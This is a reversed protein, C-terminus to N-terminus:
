VAAPACRVAPLPRFYVGPDEGAAGNTRHDLQASSKSAGGGFAKVFYVSIKDFFQLWQGLLFYRSSFKPLTWSIKLTKASFELQNTTAPLAPPACASSHGPSATSASALPRIQSPRPLQRLCFLPQRTTAVVRPTSCGCYSPCM